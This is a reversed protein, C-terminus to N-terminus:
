IELLGANVIMPIRTLLEIAGFAHVRLNILDALAFALGTLLQM